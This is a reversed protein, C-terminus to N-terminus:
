GEPNILFILSSMELTNIEPQHNVHFILYISHVILKAIESTECRKTSMKTCYWVIEIAIVPVLAKAFSFM